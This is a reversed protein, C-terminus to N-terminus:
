DIVLVKGLKRGSLQAYEKARTLADNWANKRAGAKGANSDITDYTIGSISNVGTSSLADIVKAVKQGDMNIDKITITLSVYVYQGVILGVGSSYDYKPYISVYSSSVDNKNVGNVFLAQYIKNLADNLKSLASSASDSEFQLSTYIMAVNPTIKVEGNGNVRLRNQNCCNQQTLALMLFCSLLICQSIPTNKM